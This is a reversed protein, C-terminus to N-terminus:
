SEEGGTRVDITSSRGMKFKNQNDLDPTNQISKKAKVTKRLTKRFHKLKQFSLVHCVISCKKTLYQNRPPKNYRNFVWSVIAFMVLNGSKNFFGAVAQIVNAAAVVVPNILSM